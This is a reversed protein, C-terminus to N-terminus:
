RCGFGKEGPILPIEEMVSKEIVIRKLSDLFSLLCFIRNEPGQFEGLVAQNECFGTLGLEQALQFCEFRFGVGQVRGSFTIRYRCVRDPPLAPIEARQVQGIIYQDRFKQLLTRFMSFGKKVIAQNSLIM